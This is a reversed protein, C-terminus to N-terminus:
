RFNFNRLSIIANVSFFIPIYAKMPFSSRNMTNKREMFDKLRNIQPSVNSLIDLIPLLVDLNLPFNNCLYVSASINKSYQKYLKKQQASLKEIEKKTLCITTDNGSKDGNRNDMVSEIYAQLHDIPNRKM